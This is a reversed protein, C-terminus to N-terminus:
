VCGLSISWLWNSNTLNGLKSLSSTMMGSVAFRDKLMSSDNFAYGLLVNTLLTPLAITFFNATLNFSFSYQTQVAKVHKCAVSVQPLCLRFLLVCHSLSYDVAAAVSRVAHFQSLHESVSSVFSWSTATALLYPFLDIM